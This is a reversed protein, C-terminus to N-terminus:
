RERAHAEVESSSGRRTPRWVLAALVGLALGVWHVTNAISLGFMETIGTTMLVLMLVVAISFARNVQWVAAADFQGRTAVYAFLGYAVGSLGGFLPAHTVFFQAVNGTVAILLTLLLLVISGAGREIRRGFEIVVAANFALHAIGFHIFIPTVIRWPQLSGLMAHFSAQLSPYRLSGDSGDVPVITLWPLFHGLSGADLPWTAPLCLLALAILASVVPYRRLTPWWSRGPPQRRRPVRQLGLRGDCWAAYDSQVTEADVGAAVELVQRGQEEFVRHAIRRQTLYSCFPALDVDTALNLARVSNTVVRLGAVVRTFECYGLHV